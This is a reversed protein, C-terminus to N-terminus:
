LLGEPVDVTIIRGERDVRVIMEERFPIMAKSGTSLQVELMLGQPLEYTTSVEGYEIGDAGASVVKMGPLEHVFVEGEAPEEIEDAPLFLYRGRWLDAATRDAVSGFFLLLNDGFPRMGTIDVEGPEAGADGFVDGAFVRGGAAFVADPADTLPEVVLEGKLGHARKVRGVIVYGSAAM